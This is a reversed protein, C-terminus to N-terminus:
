VANLAKEKRLRIELADPHLMEIAQSAEYANTSNLRGSYIECESGRPVVVCYFFVSV